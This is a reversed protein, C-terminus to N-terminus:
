RCVRVRQSRWGYGDWVRERTTYCHPRYPRGYYVPAPGYYSPRGYYAPGGSYYGGRANATSGIIAGLALGGIVGAAVAGGNGGRRAEAQQPTAVAVVVFTAAAALATLIKSFKLM